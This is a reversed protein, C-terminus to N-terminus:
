NFFYVLIFQHTLLVFFNTPKFNYQNNNINAEATVPHTGTEAKVEKTPIGIPIVLEATPIFIQGIVAPILCYLDVTLFFFFFCSLITNNVFVLNFLMSTKKIEM